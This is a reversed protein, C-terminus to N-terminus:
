IKEVKVRQKERMKGMCVRENQKILDIDGNMRKMFLPLTPPFYTRPMNNNGVVNLLKRSYLSKTFM